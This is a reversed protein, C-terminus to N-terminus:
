QDSSRSTRSRRTRAPPTPTASPTPMAPSPPITTAAMAALYIQLAEDESRHAGITEYDPVDEAIATLFHADLRHRAAQERCCLATCDALAVGDIKYTRLLARTALPVRGLMAAIQVDSAPPPHAFPQGAVVAIQNDPTAQDGAAGPSGHADRNDDSTQDGDPDLEKIIYKYQAQWYYRACTDIYGDRERVINLFLNYLEDTTKAPNDCILDVIMKRIGSAYTSRKQAQRGLNLESHPESM